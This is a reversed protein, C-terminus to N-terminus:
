RGARAESANESSIRELAALIRSYGTCRCLNNSLGVAVERSDPTANEEFLAHAALIIGPTCYGCQLGGEEVLAQQVAATTADTGAAEVTTVSSGDALLALTLCALVPKGDVLVTCAGCSGDDCGRKTGTLGVGDRLADLLTEHPLAAVDAEDGNVNLKLIEREIM